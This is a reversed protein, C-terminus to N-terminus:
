GETTPEDGSKPATKKSHVTGTRGALLKHRPKAGPGHQLVARSQRRLKRTRTKRARSAM